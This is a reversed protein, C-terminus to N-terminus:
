KGRAKSAETVLKYEGKIIPREITIGELFPNSINSSINTCFFLNSKTLIVGACKNIKFSRISKLCKLFQVLDKIIPPSARVKCCKANKFFILM